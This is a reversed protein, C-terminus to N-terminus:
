NTKVITELIQILIFSGGGKADSSLVEKEIFIYLM